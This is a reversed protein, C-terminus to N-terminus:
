SRIKRCRLPARGRNRGLSRIKQAHSDRSHDPERRARTITLGSVTKAQCRRPARPLIWKRLAQDAGDPSLAQVMHDDEVLSRQFADQSRMDIVILIESGVERGVLVRRDRPLDLRRLKAPHDLHWNDAPQMMAVKSFSGSLGRSETMQSGSAASSSGRGFCPQVGLNRGSCEHGLSEAASKEGSSRDVTVRSAEHSGSNSM